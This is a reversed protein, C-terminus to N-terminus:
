QERLYLRDDHFHGRFVVGAELWLHARLHLQHPHLHRDLLVHGPVQRAVDDCLINFTTVVVDVDLAQQFLKFRCEVSVVDLFMFVYSIYFVYEGCFLSFFLSVIKFYGCFLSCYYLISDVLQQPCDDHGWSELDPLRRLVDVHPLAHQM